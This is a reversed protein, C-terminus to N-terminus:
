KNNKRYSPNAKFWRYVAGEYDKENMTRSNYTPFDSPVTTTNLMNKAMIEPNAPEEFKISTEPYFTTLTMTKVGSPKNAEAYKRKEEQGKYYSEPLVVLPQVEQKRQSYSLKNILMFLFIFAFTKLTYTKM